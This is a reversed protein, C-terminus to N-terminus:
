ICESCVYKHLLICALWLTSKRMRYVDKRFVTNSETDSSLSAVGIRYQTDPKLGSIIMQEDNQVEKILEATTSDGNFCYVRYGTVPGVAKKWTVHLCNPHVAQAIIESPAGFESLM